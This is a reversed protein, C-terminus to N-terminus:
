EPAYILTDDFWTWKGLFEYGGIGCRNIDSDKWRNETDYLWDDQQVWEGAIYREMMVTLAEEADPNRGNWWTWRDHYWTNINTVVAFYGIPTPTDGIIKHLAISDGLYRIRYGNQLFVIGLASQLRFYIHIMIDTDECRLHTSLRGQPLNLTDAIRCLFATDPSTSGPGSIRLSKPASVFQATDLMYTADANKDWDSVSHHEPPTLTPPLSLGTPPKWLKNM